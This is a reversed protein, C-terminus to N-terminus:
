KGAHTSDCKLPANLVSLSDDVCSRMLRADRSGFVQCRVRFAPYPLVRECDGRLGVERLRTQAWPTRTSCSQLFTFPESYDFEAGSTERSLAAHGTICDSNWRTGAHNLGDLRCWATGHCRPPHSDPTRMIRLRGPKNTRAQGSRSQRKM